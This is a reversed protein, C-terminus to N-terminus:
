VTGQNSHWSTCNPLNLQGDGDTDKCQVNPITFTVNVTGANLDGCFDGDLDQAPSVTKTLISESCFGQRAGNGDLVGDNNVDDGGIDFIFAADYRENATVNVEFTATLTFTSGSVCTTPSVSTARAIKIDNATCGVRNANTVPASGSYLPQLCVNNGTTTPGSDLAYVAQAGFLLGGLAVAGLFLSCIGLRIWEYKRKCMNEGEM